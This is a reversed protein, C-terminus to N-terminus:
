GAVRLTRDSALELRNQNLLSWLAVRLLARDTEAPAEQDLLVRLASLSNPHHQTALELILKEAQALAAADSRDDDNEHEYDGM